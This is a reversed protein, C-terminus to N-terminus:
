SAQQWTGVTFDGEMGKLFKQDSWSLDNQTNERDRKHRKVGEQHAKHCIASWTHNPLKEMVESSKAMPYMMRLIALEEDKWKVSQTHGRDVYMEDVGFESVRWRIVIKVYRSSVLEVEIQKILLELIAQRIKPSNELINIKSLEEEISVEGEEKLDAEIDSKEKQYHTL